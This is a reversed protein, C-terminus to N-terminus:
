FHALLNTEADNSFNEEARGSYWSIESKTEAVQPMTQKLADCINTNPM